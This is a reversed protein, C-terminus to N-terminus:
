TRVSSSSPLSILTVGFRHRWALPDSSGGLRRRQSTFTENVGVTVEAHIGVRHSRDKQNKKAHRQRENKEQGEARAMELAPIM